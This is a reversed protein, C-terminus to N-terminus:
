PDGKHSMKLGDSNALDANAPHPWPNHLRAQFHVQLAHRSDNERHRQARRWRSGEYIWSLRCIPAYAHPRQTLLHRLQNITDFHNRWTADEGRAASLRLVFRTSTVSSKMLSIFTNAGNTKM